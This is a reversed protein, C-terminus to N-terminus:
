LAPAWRRLSNTQTNSMALLYRTINVVLITSFFLSIAGLVLALWVLNDEGIGVILGAALIFPYLLSTAGTSHPDGINYQWPAGLRIQRAYQFHIYADDLPAVFWDQASQYAAVIYLAALAVVIVIIWGRNKVLDRM